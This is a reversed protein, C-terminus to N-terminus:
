ELLERMTQSKLLENIKIERYKHNYFFDDSDGYGLQLDEDIYLHKMDLYEPENEDDGGWSAGLEFLRNQVKSSEQTNKIFIKTLKINM